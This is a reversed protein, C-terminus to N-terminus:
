SSARLPCRGVRGGASSPRPRDRRATTSSSRKSRRHVTKRRSRLRARAAVFRRSGQDRDRGFPARPRAKWCLARWGSRPVPTRPTSRACARGSAAERAAEDAAYEAIREAVHGPMLTGRLEPMLEEGADINPQAAFPFRADLAMVLARKLPDGLLPIRDIYQLPGNIVVREPANHPTCVIAPVGLAALEICKTGPMTVALKARPAYRMAERVLPFAVGSGEAQLATGGAYPVVAGRVGWFRELGGEALAEAIEDDPTFPSAAFAVPLEPALRELPDRM